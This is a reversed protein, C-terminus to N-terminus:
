QIATTQETSTDVTAVSETKLISLILVTLIANSFNNGGQLSTEWAIIDQLAMETGYNHQFTCGM